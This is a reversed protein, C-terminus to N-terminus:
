VDALMVEALLLGQIWIQTRVDMDMSDLDTVDALKRFFEAIWEEDVRMQPPEVDVRSMRRPTTDRFPYTPQGIVNGIVNGVVDGVVEGAVGLEAGPGQPEDGTGLAEFGRPGHRLMGFFFQERPSQGDREDRTLQM